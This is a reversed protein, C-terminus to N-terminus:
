DFGLPCREDEREAGLPSRTGHAGRGTVEERRVWPRRGPDSNCGRGAGVGGKSREEGRPSLLLHQRDFVFGDRDSVRM